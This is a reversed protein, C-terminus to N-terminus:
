VQIYVLTLQGSFLLKLFNHHMCYGGVLAGVNNFITRLEKRYEQFEAEDEVQVNFYNIVVM